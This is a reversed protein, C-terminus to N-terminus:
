RAEPASSSTTCREEMQRVRRDVRACRRVDDAGQQAAHRDEQQDARVRADAIIQQGEESLEFDYFLVAAHPHPAKRAVGVGNPRAIANGITFWDIPAGERRCSSPRTTTSRSRWRCRARSWSSRSCRTARACRSATPRSSRRSCRRAANGRRDRRLRRGALRLGGARHRAQGEVEPRPPGGVDEAAGGEERAQHQLGARLRQAAHGGMRRASPDGPAILDAHHPSKVASCSRSATCRSSSPATPRSSTWPTAAPAARRCRAISCTRPAPAGSAPRSATSRRSRRSSRGSTTPSPPPTSPSRAKRRRARRHAEAAPRRGRLARRRSGRRAGGTRCAAAVLRVDRRHGVCRRPALRGICRRRGDSSESVSVGAAARRCSPWSRRTPRRGDAVRPRAQGASGRVVAAGAAVRGRLRDPRRRAAQSIWAKPVGQANRIAVGEAKFALYRAPTTGTNFHQHFWLNPPVIM